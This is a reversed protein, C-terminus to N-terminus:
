QSYIQRQSLHKNSKNMQALVHYYGVTKKMFYQTNKNCKFTVCNSTKNATLIIVRLTPCVPRLLCHLGLDIAVSHLMQDPDVSNIM